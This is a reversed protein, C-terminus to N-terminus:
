HGRVHQEASQGCTLPVTITKRWLCDSLVYWPGLPLQWKAMTDCIPEYLTGSTQRKAPVRSNNICSCLQALGMRKNKDARLTIILLLWWSFRVLCSLSLQFVPVHHAVSAREQDQVQDQDRDEGRSHACALVCWMTTREEQLMVSRHTWLEQLTFICKRGTEGPGHTNGMGVAIVGGTM